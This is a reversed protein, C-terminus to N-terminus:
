ALHCLPSCPSNGLGGGVLRKRWMQVTVCLKFDWWQTIRRSRRKFDSAKRRLFLVDVNRNLQQHARECGAKDWPLRDARRTM